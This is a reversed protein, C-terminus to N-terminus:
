IKGKKGFTKLARIKGEVTERKPLQVRLYIQMM